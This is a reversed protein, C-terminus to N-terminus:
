LQEQLEYLKNILEEHAKEERQTYGPTSNHKYKELCWVIYNLDASDLTTKVTKIIYNMNNM